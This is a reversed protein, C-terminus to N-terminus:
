GSHRKCWCAIRPTVSWPSHRLKRWRLPTAERYLARPFLNASRIPQEVLRPCCRGGLKPESPTAAKHPARDSRPSIPSFRTAARPPPTAWLALPRSTPPRQAPDIETERQADPSLSVSLPRRTQRLHQGTPLPSANDILLARKKRLRIGDGTARPIPHETSPTGFIVLVM